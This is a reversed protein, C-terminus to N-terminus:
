SVVSFDGDTVGASADLNKELNFSPSNDPVIYDEATYTEAEYYSKGDETGVSDGLNFEVQVSAIQEIMNNIEDAYQAGIDFSPSLTQADTSDQFVLYNDTLSTDGSLWADFTSIKELEAFFRTGAPHVLALTDKYKEVGLPSNIVYSFIQYFFNDQLRIESNSLQGDATIYRGLYSVIYGDDYYLTARSELWTEFNLSPDEIGLTTDGYIELRDFVLDATYDRLFYRQSDYATKSISTGYGRINEEIQLIQDTLTLTHSYVPGVGPTYGVVESEAVAKGSPRNKFPSIRLLQGSSHGEGFKIIEAAVMGGQSDVATVRAITDVQAGPVRFVQGRRWYKGPEVVILRTPSPIVNGQFIIRDNDYITVVTAKDVVLRTYSRFIFRVTDGDLYELRSSQVVIAAGDGSTLELVPAGTLELVEPANYTKEVLISKEQFWKGDSAKLVQRYPAYTSASVGYFLRFLLDIGSTTGKRRFLNRSLEIFRREDILAKSTDIGPTLESKFFGLLQAPTVAVNRIQEVDVTYRRLFEYYRQLFEVFLPYEAGPARALDRMLFQPVQSPTFTEISRM